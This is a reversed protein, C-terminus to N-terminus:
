RGNSVEVYEKNFKIHEVLYNQFVRRSKECEEIMSLNKNNLKKEYCKICMDCHRIAFCNSCDNEGNHGINLIFNTKENDIGDDINGIINFKCQESVRECPYFNGNVDVMLRTHGPYCQGSPCACNGLTNSYYLGNVVREMIPSFLSNYFNINDCITNTKNYKFLFDMYQQKRLEYQTIFSESYINKNNNYHDEVISSLVNIKKIASNEEFLSEYEEIDNSTDIVMNISTRKFLDPFSEYVLNIKNIVSEFVSNNNHLYKRNMDNIRKPGDLSFILSFSNEQFFKLTDYKLLTGNTTITYGIKKGYFINNAYEVLEILLKEELLPEGGYFGITVNDSDVSHERLFLIAKKATEIAISKNSHIRNTGDNSTYPCYSCRLNCNQTLQITLLSLNRSILTDLSDTAPHRIVEPRNSSLYGRSKLELLENNLAADKTKIEELIKYSENTIKIVQNKNVDYMYYENDLLFTHIFPKM